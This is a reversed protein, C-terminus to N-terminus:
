KNYLIKNHSIYEYNEELENAKLKRHKNWIRRGIFLGIIIGIFLLSSLLYEKLKSNFNNNDNDKKNEFKNLNIFSITKKDQDFILPYKRMFIKGLKWVPHLIEKYIVLFYIKNNSELFVDNYDLSFTFSLEKNQFYINPFSNINKKFSSDCIIVKTRGEYVKFSYNEECIKEDIYKQFFYKVINNYYEKDALIYNYDVIFHVLSNYSCIINTNSKSPEDFYIKFNINNDISNVNSINSTKFIKLYDEDEIGVIYFGEYENQIKSDINYSKDKDFFFLGWSYSNIIKEEKLFKIFNKAYAYGGPSSKYLGLMGCYKNKNLEISSSSYNGVLFEFNEIYKMGSLNLENYFSCNDKAIAGNIIPGVTVIYETLNKFNQSLNPNYSSISENPCYGSLVPYLTNDMTFYFELNKPPNGIPVISYLQNKNLESLLFDVYYIKKDYNDNLNLNLHTSKFPLIIYNNSYKIILLKILLYFLFTKNIKKFSFFNM